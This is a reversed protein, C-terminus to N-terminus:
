RPRVTLVAKADVKGFEMPLGRGAYYADWQDNYHGSLRQASEGTVLNAFSHDLDALNSVIRMSPGVRGTYQLVSVPSGGFPLPGIDFYKGVVQLRGEVPNDITLLQYKGLEWRSIKSGQRQVGDQVGKELSSVLVADYDPFWDAPRETLLREITWTAGIPEYASKPAAREGIAKRLQNYALTVVTAAASEKNMQGNWRRLETIADM